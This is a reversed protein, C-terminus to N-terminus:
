TNALVVREVDGSWCVQEYGELTRIRLGGEESIGLCEGQTEEGTVGRLTVSRGKLWDHRRWAEWLPAVGDARVGELCWALERCLGAHVEELAFPRGAAIALSTAPRELKAEAFEGETVNVNVGIGLVYGHGDPDREVLIGSVKRDDVMVDNPWKLRAELGLGAAVRAVAWAAVQGLNVALPAWCPDKLVLSFALCKGPVALWAREFRGRGATQSAAGVVCGEALRHLNELAWTNTSGVSDLCVRSAGWLGSGSHEIEAAM